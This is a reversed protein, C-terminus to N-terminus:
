SFVSTEQFIAKSIFPLVAIVEDHYNNLDDLTVKRENQITSLKILTKYGDYNKAFLVIQFEELIIHLGIIPKINEKKCKNIFEMTAYMNTDTISIQSINNEKAYNIIDDIKLLSSLLSYNSKNFLPIYM